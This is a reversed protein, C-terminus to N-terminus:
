DDLAILARVAAAVRDQAAEVGARALERREGLIREESELRARRERGRQHGRSGVALAAATVVTGPAPTACEGDLEGLRRHLRDREADVRALAAEARGLEELARAHEQQRLTRLRKQRSPDSTV